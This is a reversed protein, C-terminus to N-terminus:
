QNNESLDFASTLGLPRSGGVANPMIVHYKAVRCMVGFMRPILETFIQTEEFVIKDAVKKVM